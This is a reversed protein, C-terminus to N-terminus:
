ENEGGSEGSPARVALKARAESLAQADIKHKLLKMVEFEESDPAIRRLFGYQELKNIQADIADAQKAENTKRPLYPLVLERIKARDLVLRAEDSSGTEFRYLEEVLLVCLLSTLYPLERRSILEPVLGSAAGGEADGQERRRRLFALGDHEAIVVEIGIHGFWEEAQSRYRLLLAWSEGSEAYLPGKLLKVLVPAYPAVETV